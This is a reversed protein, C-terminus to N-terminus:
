DVLFAREPQRDARPGKLRAFSVSGRELDLPNPQNPPNLAPPPLPQTEATGTLPSSKCPGTVGRPSPRRATRLM